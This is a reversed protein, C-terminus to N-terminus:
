EHRNIIADRYKGYEAQCRQLDKVMGKDGSHLIVLFECARTMAVYMLKKEDEKTQNKFSSDQDFTEAGLIIVIPKDMGKASHVTSIKVSEDEWAFSRKANADAAIWNHSINMQDLTEQLNEVLPFGKVNKHRYLILVNKLAYDATVMKQIIESAEKIQENMGDCEKLYPDFGGKSSFRVSMATEKVYSAQEELLFAAFSWVRASNRYVTNLIKSRGRMPIGLKSWNLEKGQHLRPTEDASDFEVRKYIHQADDAAILLNRKKPDTGKFLKEFLFSIWEKRFDQAEDIYIADFKEDEPVSMSNLLEISEPTDLYDGDIYQSGHYISNVFGVFNKIVVNQGDANIKIKDFAQRMYNALATNWCLILIRTNENNAALMKARYLIILTKGSGAIGRLLRPGEGLSKALQEQELSLNYTTQDIEDKNIYFGNTVNSVMTIDPYLAASISKIHEDSLKENLKPYLNSYLTKFNKGDWKLDPQFIVKETPILADLNQDIFDEKSINSLALRYIVPISLRDNEDLLSPMSVLQERVSRVYIQCKKEPNMIPKATSEGRFGRIHFQDQNAKVIRDIGWDKVEIILIGRAPDIVTFDPRYDREGLLVEYRVQCENPLVKELISFLKREGATNGPINDISSPIMLAM